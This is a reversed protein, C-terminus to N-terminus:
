SNERPIGCSLVSIHSGGVLHLLATYSTKRTWILRAIIFGLVNQPFPRALLLGLDRLQREGNMQAFVGTM